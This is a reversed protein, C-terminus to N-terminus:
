VLIKFSDLINYKILILSENVIPNADLVLIIISNERLILNIKVINDLVNSYPSTFYPKKKM